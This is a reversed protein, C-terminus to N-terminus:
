KKIMRHSVCAKIKARFSTVRTQVDPEGEQAPFLDFARQPDLRFVSMLNRDAPPLRDEMCKRCHRIKETKTFMEFALANPSREGALEKKPVEDLMYLKWIPIDEPDLMLDICESVPPPLCERLLKHEITPTPDPLVAPLSSAQAKSTNRQKEFRVNKAIGCLFAMVNLPANEENTEFIREARMLVESAVDDAGDYVRAAYSSRRLREWATDYTLGDKALWALFRDWSDSM